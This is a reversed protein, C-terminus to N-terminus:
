INQMLSIKMFSFLIYILNTIQPQNMQQGKTYHQCHLIISYSNQTAFTSVHLDFRQNQSDSQKTEKRQWLELLQVMVQNTTYQQLKCAIELVCRKLRGKNIKPDDEVGWRFPRHLNRKVSMRIEADKKQQRVQYVFKILFYLHLYATM